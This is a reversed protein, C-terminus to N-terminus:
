NERTENKKDCGRKKKKKEHLSERWEERRQTGEKRRSTYKIKSERYAERKKNGQGMKVRRGQRDDEM